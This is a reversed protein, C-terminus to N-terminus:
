TGSVLVGAALVPSVFDLATPMVVEKCLVDDGVTYMDFDKIAVLGESVVETYASIEPFFVELTIPIAVERCLVGVSITYSVVDVLAMLDEPVEEPNTSLELGPIAVSVKKVEPCVVVLAIPM